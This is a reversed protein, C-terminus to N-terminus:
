DVARPSVDVYKKFLEMSSLEVGERPLRNWYRLVRETFAKKRYVWGSGGRTCRIAGRM